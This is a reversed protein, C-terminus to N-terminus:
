SREFEGPNKGNAPRHNSCPDSAEGEDGAPRDYSVYPAFDALQFWRRTRGGRPPAPDNVWEGMQADVLAQLGAEAAEFARKRLTDQTTNQGVLNSSSVVVSTLILLTAMVGMVIVMAVGDESRLRHPIKTM